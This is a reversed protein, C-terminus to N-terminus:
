CGTKWLQQAQDFLEDIQARDQALATGPLSYIVGGVLFACLAIVLVTKSPGHNM